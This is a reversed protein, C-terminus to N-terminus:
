APVGNVVVTRGVQGRRVARVAADLLDFEDDRGAFVTPSVRDSTEALRTLSEKLNDEFDYPHTM